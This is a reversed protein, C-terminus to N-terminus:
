FVKIGVNGYEIVKAYVRALILTFAVASSWQPELRAFILMPLREQDIYNRSVVCAIKQKKRTEFAFDTFPEELIRTQSSIQIINLLKEKTDDLCV